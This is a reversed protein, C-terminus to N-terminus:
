QRLHLGVRLLFQVSLVYKTAALIHSGMQVLISVREDGTTADEVIVQAFVAIFHLYEDSM